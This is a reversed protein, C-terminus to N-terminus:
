RHPEIAALPETSPMEAQVVRFGILWSKDDPLTGSRNASRLFELTTSHSGGRTVRFDGEARGTPDTQPDDVYPGYWDLCWEEVNGHMDYLGWPNAPTKGVHLPVIDTGAKRGPFWSMGVNKHFPEPLTEGTHYATTTGARCAYEWEAETPLRYPRAKRRASGDASPRPM